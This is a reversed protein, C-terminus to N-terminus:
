YLIKILFQTEHSIENSIKKTLKLQIFSWTLNETQLLTRKIIRIFLLVKLKINNVAQDSMKIIYDSIRFGEILYWFWCENGWKFRKRLFDWGKLLIIGFWSSSRFDIFCFSITSFYKGRRTFLENIIDTISTVGFSTQEKGALEWLRQSYCLTFELSASLFYTDAM